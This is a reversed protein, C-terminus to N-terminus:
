RGVKILKASFNRFYRKNIIWDYNHEDCHSGGDVGMIYVEDEHVCGITYIHDPNRLPNESCNMLDVKDGPRIDSVDAIVENDKCFKKLNDHNVSWIYLKVLRGTNPNEEATTTVITGLEKQFIFEALEDGRKCNKTDTFLIHARPSKSITEFERCITLLREKPLAEYGFVDCLEQIGCCRLTHLTM